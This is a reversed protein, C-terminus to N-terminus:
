FNWSVLLGPTIKQDIKFLYSGVVPAYIKKKYDQHYQNVYIWNYKFLLPSFASLASIAAFTRADDTTQSSVYASAVFNTMISFWTLKNALSAAREFNEEVIRERVLQDQMSANPLSKIELTAKQYPRYFESMLWTGVLWAGGISVATRQARINEDKDFKDDDKPLETQQSYIGSALTMLASFQIPLHISNKEQAEKKVEIQLRETARPSVQLEPYVLEDTVNNTAPSSAPTNAAWTNISLSAVMLGLIWNM